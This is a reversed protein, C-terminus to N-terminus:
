EEDRSVEHMILDPIYCKRVWREDERKEQLEDETSEPICPQDHAFDRYVGGRRQVRGYKQFKSKESSMAQATARHPETHSGLKLDM